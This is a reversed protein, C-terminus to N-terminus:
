SKAIKFVTQMYDSNQVCYFTSFLQIATIIDHAAGHTILSMLYPLLCRPDKKFADTLILEPKKPNLNVLIPLKERQLFSLFRIMDRAQEETSLRSSVNDGPKIKENAIDCLLHKWFDYTEGGGQAGVFEHFTFIHRITYEDNAPRLKEM